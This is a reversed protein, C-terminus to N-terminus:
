SASVAIVVYLSSCSTGSIFSQFNFLKVLNWNWRPFMVQLDRGRLAVPYEFQAFSYLPHVYMYVTMSISSPSECQGHYPLFAEQVPPDGSGHVVAAVTEPHPQLDVWIELERGTGRPSWGGWIESNCSSATHTHTHTHTHTWLTPSYFFSLPSPFTIAMTNWPVIIINNHITHILVKSALDNMYQEREPVFPCFQEVQM